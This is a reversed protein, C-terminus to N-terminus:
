LIFHKIYNYVSQATIHTNCQTHTHTHTHTTCTPDALSPTLVAGPLLTCMCLYMCMCMTSSSHTKHHKSKMGVRVLM